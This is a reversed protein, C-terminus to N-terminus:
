FSKKFNLYNGYSLFQNKQLKYIQDCFKLTSIRHAVIIITIKHNLKRISKMVNEETLNDLASTAEDLILLQPKHYLARAVAIRQRQGGSLRVGREGVTSQYKEPLDNLIFDHINAIKAVIEVQKIDIKDEPIGFAINSIITGDALFPHQPVYGITAQWSKLNKSNLIVNDVMIKGQTPSLLGLILDILTTKGSGTEGIIGITSLAPITLNIGKLASRKNKPYSYSLGLLEINKKLRIKTKISIKNKILKVSNLEKSLERLAPSTFRLRTASFYIQQLSPMIKYGAFAYLSLIPIAFDINEATKMLFMAIGLMGGFAISEFIYRPVQGAIQEKTLLNAYREAPKTYMKFFSFELTSIKIEKIGGFIGSLIEFRQKNLFTREDGYKLILNRILLYVGGYCILLTLTMYLTLLPNVVFLLIMLSFVIAAHSILLMFPMLCGQVVREVESLVSKGLEAGSKNLFWEYPQSLYGELLKKGISYEQTYTFRLILWTTFARFISSIVLICFVIIGLFFLFSKQNDFDFFIMTTHLYTNSSLINPNSLVAIFPMISAVGLSDLVAMVLILSFLLIAHKKEQYSLFSFILKYISILGLKKNMVM